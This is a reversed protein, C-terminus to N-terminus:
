HWVGAAKGEMELVSAAQREDNEILKDKPSHMLTMAKAHWSKVAARLDAHKEAEALAAPLKEDLCQQAQDYVVQGRGRGMAKAIPEYKADSTCLFHAMVATHVEEVALAPACFLICALAALAKM